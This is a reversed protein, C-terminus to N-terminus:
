VNQAASSYGENGMELTSINKLIGYINVGIAYLYNATIRSPLDQLKRLMTNSPFIKVMDMKMELRIERSTHEEAHQLASRM